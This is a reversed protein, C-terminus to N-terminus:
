PEDTLPPVISLDDESAYLWYGGGVTMDTDDDLVKWQGPYGCEWRRFYRARDGIIKDCDACGRGLNKLYHGATMTDTADIECDGDFDRTKFGVLNWGKELPYEPPTVVPNPPDEYGEGLLLAPYIMQMIYGEGDEMETLMDLGAYASADAGPFYALWKDNAADYAWVEDVVGLHAELVDTITAQPDPIVPLSMYNWDKCLQIQYGKLRPKQWIVVFESTSSVEYGLPDGTQPNISTVATVSVKVVGPAYCNLTWEVEHGQGVPIATVQKSAQEGYALEAAGELINITATFPGVECCAGCEETCTNSIEAHVGFTAGTEVENPFQVITVRVPMQHITVEVPPSNDYDIDEGTNGHIGEPDAEITVTCPGDCHLTEVVTASEGEALLDAVDLTFEKDGDSLRSAEGDVDIEVTVGEATEQGTNTITVQLPIENSYAYWRDAEPADIHAELHAKAQQVVNVEDYNNLPVSHPTSKGGATVNINTTGTQECTVVWTVVKSNGLDGLKALPGISKTANTTSASGAPDFEITATIPNIAEDFRNTVTATVVFTRSTNFKDDELPHSIDVVLDKQTLTIEATDTIEECLESKGTAVVTFPVRYEDEESITNAGQSCHFKWSVEKSGHQELDGVDIPYGDQGSDGGAEWTVHGDWDITAVVDELDAYGTNEIDATISYISSTGVKEEDTTLVGDILVPRVNVVAIQQRPVQDITKTGVVIMDSPIAEGTVDDTGEPTVKITLEGTETCHVTWMVEHAYGIQPEETWGPIHGLYKRATEGEVLEGTGGILEITAWVDQAMEGGTNSILAMVSFTESEYYKPERPKVITAELKPHGFHQEVTITEECVYGEETEATVTIATDGAKVCHLMWEVPKKREENDIELVKTAADGDWRPVLEAGDGVDITATVVDAVSLVNATVTFYQSKVVHEHDQPRLIEVGLPQGVDVSDDDTVTQGSMVGEAYVTIGTTGVGACHLTWSVPKSEDAPIDGVDIPDTPTVVEAYAGPAITAKVDTVGTASTNSIVAHVVFDDCMCEWDPVDTIDIYFEALTQMVDIPGASVPGLPDGSCRDTGTVEVSIDVDEAGDCDCEYIFDYYADNGNISVVAPDPPDCTADGTVTLSPTVDDAEVNGTNTVRVTVQFSDGVLVATEDSWLGVELEAEQQTVAISQPQTIRGSPVPENTCCDTAVITATIEATGSITCTVPAVFVAQSGPACGQQVPTLPGVDAEASSELTPVIEDACGNGTNTVTLTVNFTGDVCVESPGTLVGELVAARQQITDADDDDILASDIDKTGGCDYTGTVDVTFTVADTVQTCTCTSTFEVAEGDPGIEANSSTMVPDCDAGTTNSLTPTVETATINGTNTVVVKATFTDDVCVWEPVEVDAELKPSTQTVTITDSVLDANAGWVEVTMVGTGPATCTLVWQVDVATLGAIDHGEVGWSPDPGSKLGLNELELTGTVDVAVTGTVVNSITATLTVEGGYCIPDTPDTALVLALEPAAKPGPDASVPTAPLQFVGLALVVLVLGLAALTLPILMRSFKKAHEKM